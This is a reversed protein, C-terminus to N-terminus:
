TRWDAGADPDERIALEVDIVDNRICNLWYVILATDRSYGAALFVQIIPEIESLKKRWEAAVNPESM